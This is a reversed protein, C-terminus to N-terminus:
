LRAKQAATQLYSSIDQLSLAQAQPCAKLAALPMASAYANKPHQVLGIGGADMITKLGFAGDQNAGSLVVGILANEYVDAATEFLVDISPRSYLVPEETTLSLHGNNEVLLHYDPPCIYVTGAAIPMKDEVEYVKLRTKVQLVEALVSKKDSPLHVVIMIPLPFDQPLLCLLTSIAEVAGASAGIVVAQHLAESM